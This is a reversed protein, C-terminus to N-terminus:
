STLRQEVPIEQQTGLKKIRIISAILYIIVSWVGLIIGIAMILLWGPAKSGRAFLSREEFNSTYTTAAGWPVRVRNELTGVVDNDDVLAVLELHGQKDGPLDTLKFEAQVMGTSDTTYMEEDGINLDGGLRKVALRMDVGAMPVVTDNEYTYLRARVSRTGDDNITDLDLRSKNIMLELSKAGFASTSDAQAYFTPNSKEKWLTALNAPLGLTAVGQENTVVRGILSAKDLDNNLYINVPVKGQPHFAKGVKSKTQVNLYPVENNIVYYRLYLLSEKADSASDAQAIGTLPNLCVTFIVLNSFFRLTSMNKM